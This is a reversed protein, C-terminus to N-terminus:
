VGTDSNKQVTDENKSESQNQDAVETAISDLEESQVAGVLTEVADVPMESIGTSQDLDIVDQGTVLDIDEQEKEDYQLDIRLGLSQLEKVLVHFSEPIGPQM